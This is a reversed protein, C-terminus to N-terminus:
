NLLCSKFPILNAFLSPNVSALVECLVKTVMACKLEEGYLQKLKSQLV